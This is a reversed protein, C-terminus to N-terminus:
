NVAEQSTTVIYNCGAKLAIWADAFHNSGSDNFHAVGLVRGQTIM